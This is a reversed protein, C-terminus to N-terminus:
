AQNTHPQHQPQIPSCCGYSALLELVSQLSRASTGLPDRNANGPKCGAFSLSLTRDLVSCGGRKAEAKAARQCPMLDIAAGLKGADMAGEESGVPLLM